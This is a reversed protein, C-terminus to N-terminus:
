RHLRGVEICGRRRGMVCDIHRRHELRWAHRPFDEDAPAEAVGGRPLLGAGAGSDRPGSGTSRGGFDWLRLGFAL